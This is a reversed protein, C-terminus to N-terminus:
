KNIQYRGCREEKMSSGMALLLMYYVNVYMIELYYALLSVSITINVISSSVTELGSPINVNQNM